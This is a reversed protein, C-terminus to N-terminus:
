GASWLDYFSRPKGKLRSTNIFKWEDQMVKLLKAENHTLHIRQNKFAVCRQMYNFIVGHGQYKQNVGLYIENLNATESVRQLVPSKDPNNEGSMLSKVQNSLKANELALIWQRIVIMFIDSEKQKFPEMATSKEVWFLLAEDERLITTLLASKQHSSPLRKKTLNIILPKKNKNQLQIRAYDGLANFDIKGRNGLTVFEDTVPSYSLLAASDAALCLVIRDLLAQYLSQLNKAEPFAESAELIPQIVQAQSIEQKQQSQNIINRISQVLQKYPPFPKLILGNAEKQLAEMATDLTGFATMFVFPLLPHRIRSRLLLEFGDMVPMRIDALVLDIEFNNLYDLAQESSTFPIVQFGALELIKSWLHVNNSDDDVILIKERTMNVM